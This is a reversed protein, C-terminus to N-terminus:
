SIVMDVVLYRECEVLFSFSFFGEGIFLFFNRCKEATGGMWGLNELRVVLFCFIYIREVLHFFQNREM